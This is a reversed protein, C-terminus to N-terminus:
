MILRHLRGWAHKKKPPPLLCVPFAILASIISLAQIKGDQPMMM